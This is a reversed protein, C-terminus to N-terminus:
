LRKLRRRNDSEWIIQKVLEDHILGNSVIVVSSHTKTATITVKGGAEKALLMGADIDWPHSSNIVLGDTKGSAVYSLDTAASGVMRIREVVTALHEIQRVRRKNEEVEGNKAFDGVHVFAKGLTTVSSVHVPQGNLMAGKGRMASYMEDRTPLYIVSAVAENHYLLCISVGFIPSTHQYNASGDLPDVSWRYPSPSKTEDSEESLIGFEPFVEQLRALIIRESALDVNLLDDHLAKSKEIQVNGQNALLYNGAQQAASKATEIALNLDHEVDLV